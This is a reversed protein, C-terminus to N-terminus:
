HFKIPLIQIWITPLYQNKFSKQWQFNLYIGFSWTKSPFILQSHPIVSSLKGNLELMIEKWMQSNLFYDICVNCFLTGMKQAAGYLKRQRGELSNTLFLNWVHSAGIRLLCMLIFCTLLALQAAGVHGWPHKMNKQLPSGIPHCLCAGLPHKNDKQLPPHNGM